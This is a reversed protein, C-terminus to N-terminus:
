SCCNLLVLETFNAKASYLGMDSVKNYLISNMIQYAYCKSEFIAVIKPARQDKEIKHPKFAKKFSTTHNPRCDSGIFCFGYDAKACFAKEQYVLVIHPFINNCHEM